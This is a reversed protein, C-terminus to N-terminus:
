RGKTQCLPRKSALPESAQEELSAVSCNGKAPCGTRGQPARPLPTGGGGGKGGRRAVAAPLVNPRLFEIVPGFDSRLSGHSLGAALSERGGGELFPVLPRGPLTFFDLHRGHVIRQFGRGKKHEHRSQRFKPTFRRPQWRSKKVRNVPMRNGRGRPLM